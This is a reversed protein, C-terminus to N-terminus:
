KGNKKGNNHYTVWSPAYNKFWDDAAQDFGIDHGAMESELWKHRNIEEVVKKDQLLKERDIRM